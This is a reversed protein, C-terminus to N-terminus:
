QLWIISGVPPVGDSEDMGNLRYLNKLKVGFKQAISYM